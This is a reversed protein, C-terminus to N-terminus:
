GSSKEIFRRKFQRLWMSLQYCVAYQFNEEWGKTKHFGILKQSTDPVKFFLLLKDLEPTRQYSIVGLIAKV